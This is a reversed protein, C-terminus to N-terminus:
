FNYDLQISGWLFSDFVLPQNANEQEGVGITFRFWWKPGMPQQLTVGIRKTRLFYVPAGTQADLPTNALNVQNDPVYGTAAILGLWQRPSSLYRRYLIVLSKGTKPRNDFSFFVRGSLWNNGFYRGLQATALVPQASANFYLYRLGLSGEWGKNLDRYVEAGLRLGPWLNSGSLGANLYMYTRSSLKPYWDGELQLGTKGRRIAQNVRITWPGKKADRTYYYSLANANGLINDYADLNYVIGVHNKKIEKKLRNYLALGTKNAGDYYLLTESSKLSEEKMGLQYELTAKKELLEIESPSFFIGNKAANLANEPQNAWIYVDTLALYVPVFSKDQRLVEKAEVVAADTQNQYGYNRVRFSRAELFGPDLEVAKELYVNASDYQKAYAYTKGLEYYRRKLEDKNQGFLLLSFSLLFLLSLLTSLLSHSKSFNNQLWFSNKRLM